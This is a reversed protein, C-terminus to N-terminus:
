AEGDQDILALIQDLQDQNVDLDPFDALSYEYETTDEQGTEAYAALTAIFQQALWAITEETHLNSSYTWRM